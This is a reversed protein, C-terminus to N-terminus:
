REKEDEAIEETNQVKPEEYEIEEKELPIKKDKIISQIIDEEM